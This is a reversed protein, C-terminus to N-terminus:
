LAVLVSGFVPLAFGFDQMRSSMHSIVQVTGSCSLEGSLAKGM